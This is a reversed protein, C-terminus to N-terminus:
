KQPKTTVMIKEVTSILADASYPKKLISVTQQEKLRRRVEHEDYGSAILVKVFPNITRLMRLTEVGDMGPLKMDLIVLDIKDQNSLYAAIGEHGDETSIVELGVADLIDEVAERMFLENEVVLVAGKSSM